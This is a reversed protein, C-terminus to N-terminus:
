LYTVGCYLYYFNLAEEQKMFLLDPFINFWLFGFYKKQIIWGGYFSYKIRYM